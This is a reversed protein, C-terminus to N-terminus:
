KPNNIDLNRHSQCLISNAGYNHTFNKRSTSKVRFMFRANELNMESFYKKREFKEASLEDHNLKKYNRIDQLIDKRNKEEIYQKTKKKWVTKSVDKPNVNGMKHLHEKLEKVIGIEREEQVLFIEGALSDAPLNALHHLFNMKKQLLLNEVRISGTQWYFSPKPTGTSCRLITQFFSNFFDELIKLTKKPINIWTERNYLISPIIAANFIDFAINIGGNKSARTDEILTRLEIVSFKALGIRRKVTEHISENNDFSVMDGLYKVHKTEQMEHGGIYIPKRQLEDRLKKRAKKNGVLVYNSKEINLELVKKNVM